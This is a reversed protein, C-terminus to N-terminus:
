YFAIAYPAQGFGIPTGGLVTGDAPGVYLGAAPEGMGTDSRAVGVFLQKDPSVSAFSIWSAPGLVDRLVRPAQNMDGVISGPAM